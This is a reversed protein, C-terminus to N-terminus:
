FNGPHKTKKTAIKSNSIEKPQEETFIKNYMLVSYLRSHSVSYADRIPLAAQVPRDAIRSTNKQIGSLIALANGKQITVALSHLFENFFAFTARASAFGLFAETILTLLRLCDTHFGGFTELIFSFM